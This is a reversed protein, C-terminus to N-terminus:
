KKKKYEEAKITAKKDFQLLYFMGKILITGTEKNLNEIVLGKGEILIKGHTSMIVVSEDDFRLIHEVENMVFEVGDNIELHFKGREQPM